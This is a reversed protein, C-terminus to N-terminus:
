NTRADCNFPLTSRDPKALDENETSRWGCHEKNKARRGRM